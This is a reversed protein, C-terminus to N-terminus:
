KNHMLVFVIVAAAVSIIGVSTFIISLIKGAKMQPIYIKQPSQPDIFIKMTEGESFVPPNTSYASEATYTRGDYDYQMVPKYMTSYHGNSHSTHKRNEIVTASVEQTCISKRKKDSLSITVGVSIFVAAFLLIFIIAYWM